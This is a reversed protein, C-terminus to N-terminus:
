AYVYPDHLPHRTITQPYIAHHAPVVVIDHGQTRHLSNAQAVLWIEVRSQKATRAVAM